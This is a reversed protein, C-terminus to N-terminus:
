NGLRTLLSTLAFHMQFVTEWSCSEIRCEVGGLSWVLGDGFIRDPKPIRVTRPAPMEVRINKAVEESELGQAVQQDLGADSWSRTSLEMLKQATWRHAVVEAGVREAGFVHDWHWHTLVVGQPRFLGLLELQELFQRAHASSAGGDLMVVMESGVVACLAPRDPEGPPMWYVHETIQQLTSDSM